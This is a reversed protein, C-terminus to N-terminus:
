RIGLTPQAIGLAQKGITGKQKDINDHLSLTRANRWYLDAAHRRATSRAGCLVFLDSGIQVASQSVFVKLIYMRRSLEPLVDFDGAVARDYLPAIRELLALGAEVGVALDAIRLQVNPEDATREYGATPRRQTNTYDIAYALAGEAMGALMAAFGTQYLSGLTRARPVAGPGGIVQSAPLPYRNAILTGSATARQGLNDWDDIIEIEPRDLRLPTLLWNDPEPLTTAVCHILGWAAGPSGTAFVKRATVFWGDPAPEARSSFGVRNGTADFRDTPESGVFCFLEGRERVGDAFPEAAAAGGVQQITLLANCHASYIQATNSCAGALRRLLDFYHGYSTGEGWGIGGLRRPLPLALLGARRLLDISAHPYTGDTDVLPAMERLSPLVRELAEDLAEPTAINPYRRAPAANM